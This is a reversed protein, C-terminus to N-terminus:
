IKAAETYATLKKHASKPHTIVNSAAPQLLSRIYAAWGDLAQKRDASYQHRNYIAAVGSITGSSHNLIKDVVHPATGISAMGSAATRRLDHIRWDWIGMLRDLQAKAASWGGLPRGSITFMLKSGNIVPQAKLIELALSSLHVEHVKSNKARTAPIVWLGKNLDVEARTMNAVEDRRQATLLLLRLLPGYPWAISEGATWFAVIEDDSLVRDRQVAKVVRDITM